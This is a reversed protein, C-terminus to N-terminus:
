KLYEKKDNDKNRDKFKLYLREPVDHEIAM